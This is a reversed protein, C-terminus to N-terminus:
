TCRCLISISYIMAQGYGHGSQGVIIDPNAYIGACIKVPAKFYIQKAIMEGVQSLAEKASDCTSNRFGQCEVEFKFTQNPALFENSAVVLCSTFVLIQLVRFKM